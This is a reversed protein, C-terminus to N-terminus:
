RAEITGPRTQFITERLLKHVVDDLRDGIYRQEIEKALPGDLMISKAYAPDRMLGFRLMWSKILGWQASDVKARQLAEVLNASRECERMVREYQVTMEKLPDYKEIAFKRGAARSKPELAERVQDLTAVDFVEGSRGGGLAGGGVHLVEQVMSFRVDLEIFGMVYRCEKGPRLAVLAHVIAMSSEPTPRRFLRKAIFSFPVHRQKILAMLARDEVMPKLIECNDGGQCSSAVLTTM